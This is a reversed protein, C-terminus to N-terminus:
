PTVTESIKSFLRLANETTREAAAPATWGRLDSVYECIHQLYAPENRRGRMPVPALYPCDTELIMRDEPFLEAVARVDKANKFTIIGSISFYADLDIARRALREGSTYCHMLIKFPKRKFCEELLDGTADDAERTHVIVPLGTEQAAEIHRRFVSVQDDLDSYGYHQDLGTEGIAVVKPDLSQEILWEMSLWTHDKAYHPHCGVSRWMDTRSDTIQKIRDINEPKDCISLFRSIGAEVARALVDDRDEDYIAGHLNVHTDFLTM